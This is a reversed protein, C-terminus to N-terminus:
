RYDEPDFATLKENRFFLYYVQGKEDPGWRYTEDTRLVGNVKAKIHTDGFVREGTKGLVDNVEKLPMGTTLQNAFLWRLSDANGESQFRTRHEDVQAAVEEASPGGFHFIPPNGCGSLVIAGAALLGITSTCGWLHKAM